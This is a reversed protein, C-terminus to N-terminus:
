SDVYVTTQLESEIQHQCFIQKTYMVVAPSAWELAFGVQPNCSGCIGRFPDAPLGAWMRSTM